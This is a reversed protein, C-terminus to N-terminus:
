KSFGGKYDVWSDPTEYLRISYPPNGTSAILDFFAVAMNEATPPFFPETFPHCENLCKHDFQDIISAEVIHKLEGFDIIMGEANIRGEFTVELTYTHGHLNQCKGKHQPLFHAAEFQFRKTVKAYRIM